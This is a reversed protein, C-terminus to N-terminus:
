CGLPITCLQHPGLPHPLPPTLSGLVSPGGDACDPLTGEGQGKLPSLIIHCAQGELDCGATVGRGRARHSQDEAAWVGWWAQWLCLLHSTDDIDDICAM